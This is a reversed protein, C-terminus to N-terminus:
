VGDIQELLEIVAEACDVDDPNIESIAESLLDCSEEMVAYRDTDQLSDPTNEMAEEEEDLIDSLEAEVWEFDSNTKKLEAIVKRIAARKKNNM